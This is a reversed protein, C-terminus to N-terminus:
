TCRETTLRKYGLYANYSIGIVLQHKRFSSQDSVIGKPLSYLWLRLGIPLQAGSDCRSLGLCLLAAYDGLVRRGVRNEDLVEAFHQYM